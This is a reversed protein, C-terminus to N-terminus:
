VQTIPTTPRRRRSACAFVLCGCLLLAGFCGVMTWEVKSSVRGKCGLTRCCKSETCEQDSAYRDPLRHPKAHTDREGRVMHLRIHDPQVDCLPVDQARVQRESDGVACLAPVSVPLFDDRSWEVDTTCSEESPVFFLCCWWTGYM